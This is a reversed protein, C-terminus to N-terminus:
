GRSRWQDSVGAAEEGPLITSLVGVAACSRGIILYLVNKNDPCDADGRLGTCAFQISRRHKM